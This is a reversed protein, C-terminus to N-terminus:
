PKPLWESTSYGVMGGMGWRSEQCRKLRYWFFPIKNNNEHDHRQNDHIYFRKKKGTPPKQKKWEIDGTQTRQEQKILFTLRKPKM